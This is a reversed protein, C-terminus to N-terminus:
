EMEKLKKTSELIRESIKRKQENLKEIDAGPDQLKKNISDLRDRDNKLKVFFKRTNELENIEGKIKPFDYLEKIEEIEKAKNKEVADIYRKLIPDGEEGWKEYYKDRYKRKAVIRDLVPMESLKQDKLLTRDFKKDFIKSFAKNKADKVSLDYDRSKFDVDINKDRTKNYLKNIEEEIKPFADKFAGKAKRGLKAVGAMGPMTEYPSEPVILDLLTQPLTAIGAGVNPYGAKAFPEVVNETLYGESKKKLDEFFKSAESEGMPKKKDLWTEM